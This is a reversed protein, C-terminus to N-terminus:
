DQILKFALRRGFGRKRVLTIWLRLMADVVQVEEPGGVWVPRLGVDAILSEV